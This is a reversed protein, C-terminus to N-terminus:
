RALQRNVYWPEDTVERILVEALWGPLEVPTDVSPLELEALVL